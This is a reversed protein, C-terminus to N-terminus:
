LDLSGIFVQGPKRGEQSEKLLTKPVLFGCVKRSAVQVGSRDFGLRQGTKRKDDLLPERDPTGDWQALEIGQSNM